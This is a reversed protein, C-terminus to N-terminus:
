SDPAIKAILLSSYEKEQMKEKEASCIFSQIVAM